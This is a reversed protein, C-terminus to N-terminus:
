RESSKTARHVLDEGRMLNIVNLEDRFLLLARIGLIDLAQALQVGGHPSRRARLRHSARGRPAGLRDDEVLGVPVVVGVLAAQEPGGVETVFDEAWRRAEVGLTVGFFAAEANRGSDLSCRSIM